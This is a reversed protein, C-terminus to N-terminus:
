EVREGTIEPVSFYPPKCVIYCKLFVNYIKAFAITFYAIYKLNAIYAL